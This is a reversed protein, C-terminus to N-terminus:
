MEESSLVSNNDRIQVREGRLVHGWCQKDLEVVTVFQTLLYNAAYFCDVVALYPILHYLLLM